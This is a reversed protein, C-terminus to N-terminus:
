FDSLLCGAAITGYIGWLPHTQYAESLQSLDKSWDWQEPHCGYSFEPQKDSLPCFLVSGEAEGGVHM